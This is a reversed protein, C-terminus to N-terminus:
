PQDHIKNISHRSTYQVAHSMMTSLTRDVYYTHRKMNLDVEKKKM